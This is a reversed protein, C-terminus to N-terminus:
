GSLPLPEAGVNYKKSIQNWKPVLESEETSPEDSKMDILAKREENEQRAALRQRYEEAFVHPVNENIGPVFRWERHMIRITEACLVPGQGKVNVWEGTAMVREKPENEIRYDLKAQRIQIDTTAKRTAEQLMHAAKAKTREAAEGTKKLHDTQSELNAMFNVKDQSWAEEAKDRQRARARMDSLERSRSRDELLSADQAIFRDLELAAELKQENTPAQRMKELIAILKPDQMAGPKHLINHEREKDIKKKKRGRSM